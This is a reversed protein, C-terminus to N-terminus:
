PAPSDALVWEVAESLWGSHWDHKRFPGDRYEHPIKWEKLSAHLRQHDARFSGYGLLCLRAKNGLEGGRGKILTPVHYSEFTQRNAVIKDMGYVPKDMMLPADWAAVRGFQDPHRLLLSLAGWGSKSFGVLHRDAANRSAPYHREIAPVVVRLFYTEQRIAPETPHDAYWPLHSFSPAVFIASHRNALDHKYAEAMGDGYKSNGQVEVPLLFVVPYTKKPDTRAPLLVRITTVGSQYPSRVEHSRIGQADVRPESVVSDDAALLRTAASFLCLLSWQFRALMAKTRYRNNYM